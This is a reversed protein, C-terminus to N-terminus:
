QKVYLVVNNIAQGKPDTGTYNVTMTKGDKAVSAKATVAPKGGKKYVISVDNPGTQTLAATDFAPSGTVPVDKGDRTATYGTKIPKGEPDVGDVAVKFTKDAAATIDVTLSKPAPGPKYTSKALDVKWTGAFPDPPAQASSSVSMAVACVATVAIGVALRTWTARM